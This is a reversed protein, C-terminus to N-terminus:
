PNENKIRENEMEVCRKKNTMQRMFHTEVNKNTKPKKKKSFYVIGDTQKKQIKRNKRQVTRQNTKSNQNTKAVRIKRIKVFAM